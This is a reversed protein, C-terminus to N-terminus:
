RTSRKRSVEDFDQEQAFLKTTFSQQSNFHDSAIDWPRTDDKKYYVIKCYSVLQQM